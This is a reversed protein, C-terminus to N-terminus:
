ITCIYVQCFLIRTSCNPLQRVVVLLNLLAPVLGSIALEFTSLLREKVVSSRITHLAAKLKELEDCEDFTEINTSHYKKSLSNAINQLFSISKSYIDYM